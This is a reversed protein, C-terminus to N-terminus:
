AMEKPIKSTLVKLDKRLNLDQEEFVGKQTRGVALTKQSFYFFASSTVINLM